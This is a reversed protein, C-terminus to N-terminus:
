QPYEHQPEAPDFEEEVYPPLVEIADLIENVEQETLYGLVDNTIPTDYSLDDDKLVALEWLGQEKGYSFNHQVISAGYRNPFSAKYQIGGNIKNSPLLRFDNKM